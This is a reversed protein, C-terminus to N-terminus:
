EADIPGTWTGFSPSPPSSLRGVVVVSSSSVRRRRRRCVYFRKSLSARNGNGAWGLVCEECLFPISREPPVGGRVRIFSIGTGISMFEAHKACGAASSPTTHSRPATTTIRIATHQHKASSKRIIQSHNAFSKRTSYVIYYVDM